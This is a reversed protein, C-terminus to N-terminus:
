KLMGVSRAVAEIADFDAPAAAVFKRAGQLTLVRAHAADDPTLALFAAEFKQRLGEPVAARATWVYDM